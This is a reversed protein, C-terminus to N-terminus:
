RHRGCDPAGFSVAPPPATSRTLSHAPQAAPCLATAPDWPRHSGSPASSIIELPTAARVRQPRLFSPVGPELLPQPCHLPPPQLCPPAAPVPPLDGAEPRMEASEPLVGGGCLSWALEACEGRSGRGAPVHLMPPPPPPSSSCEEGPSGGCSPSGLWCSSAACSRQLFCPAGTQPWPVM